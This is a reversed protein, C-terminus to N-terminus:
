LWEDGGGGGGTTPPEATPIPPPEDTPVAPAGADVTPEEEGSDISFDFPVDAEGHVPEPGAGSSRAAAASKDFQKALEDLSPATCDAMNKELTTKVAPMVGLLQLVDVM